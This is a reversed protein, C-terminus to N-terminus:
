TGTHSAACVQQRKLSLGAALAQPGKLAVRPTSSLRVVKAQQCMLLQIGPLHGYAVHVHKAHTCGNTQDHAAAVTISGQQQVTVAQVKLPNSRRGQLNLCRQACGQLQPAIIIDQVSAQHVGEHCKRAEVAAKIAGARLCTRTQVVSQHLCM